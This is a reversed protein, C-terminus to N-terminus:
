CMQHKTWMNLSSCGLHGSDSTRIMNCRREDRVESEFPCRSFVILHPKPECTRLYPRGLISASKRVAVSAFARLHNAVYAARSLMQEKMQPILVAPVSPHQWARRLPSQAPKMHRRRREAESAGASKGDPSAAFLAPSAREAGPRRTRLLWAPHALVSLKPRVGQAAGSATRPVPATWCM